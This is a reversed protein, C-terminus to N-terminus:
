NSRYLIAKMCRPIWVRESRISLCMITASKGSTPTMRLSRTSRDIVQPAIISLVDRLCGGTEIDVAKPIEDEDINVKIDIRM